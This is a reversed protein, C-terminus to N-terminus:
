LAAADVAVAERERALRKKLARAQLRVRVDVFESARNGLLQELRRADVHRLDKLELGLAHRQLRKNVDRPIAEQVQSPDAGRDPKPNAIERFRLGYKLEDLGGARHRLRLHELDEVHSDTEADNHRRITVDYLPKTLDDVELPDLAVFDALDDFVGLPTDVKIVKTQHPM